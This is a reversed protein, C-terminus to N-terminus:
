ILRMRKEKTASPYRMGQARRLFYQLRSMQYEYKRSLWDSISSFLGKRVLIVEFNKRILPNWRLKYKENGRLFDFENFKEEFCHQIINLYLLHGISYREFAPDMGTLYAYSKSKHSFGYVSAITKDEVLLSHLSLWGRESFLSAVDLHFDRIKPDGFVGPWGRATWRKQHLYFLKELEEKLSETKSCNKFELSYKQQLKRLPRRLSNKRFKRSLSNYFTDYSELRLYPCMTPVHMQLLKANRSIGDLHTLFESNEPVEALEICDWKEALNYLIYDIFQKMCEQGKEALIFDSYDSEPTGIFEIKRIRLGFINRISYMLPAIGLVKDGEQALLLLLRKDRGLHKWWSSLWEWTSFVSNECRGLVNSWEEQLAIFDSFSNVELIKM